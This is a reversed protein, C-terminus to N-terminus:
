FKMLYPNLQWGTFQARSSKYPKKKMIHNFCDEKLARRLDQNNVPAHSLNNCVDKAYDELTNVKQFEEVLILQAQKDDKGQSKQATIKEVQKSKLELYEKVNIPKPFNQLSPFTLQNADSTSYFTHIEQSVTKLELPHTSTIIITTTSPISTPLSTPISTSTITLQNTTTIIHSQHTLSPLKKIM